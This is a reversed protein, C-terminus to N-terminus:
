TQLRLLRAANGGLIAIQQARTLGATALIEDVPATSAVDFAFDTGIVVQSAGATAVLHKINSASYVLADFHLQPGKLYASPARKMQQCDKNWSHCKDSRGIYSPLYGGGHAALIKVGPFRDLFGDFIMHSLAVTTELPNGVTNGLYGNGEFRKGAQAFGAPHVFIVIGVKEAKRWFPDFRAHSIEVDNVSGGIMFGRMNLAGVAYEMQEVALDPHQMAVGGLSVFRDPHASCIEALKENQIKVIRAALAPDAWYHYQGPHLSIAHVDIGQRDMERLRADITKPDLAMPGNAMAALVAPRAEPRGEILGFVDHVYAHCHMDITRIRRGGITVQRRGTKAQAAHADIAGPWNCGCFVFGASAATRQLFRRRGIHTM